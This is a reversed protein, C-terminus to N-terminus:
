IYKESAYFICMLIPNFNLFFSLKIKIMMMSLIICNLKFSFRKVLTIMIKIKHSPMIKPFFNNNNNKLNYFWQLINADSFYLSLRAKQAFLIYNKLHIKSFQINRPFLFIDLYRMFDASIQM